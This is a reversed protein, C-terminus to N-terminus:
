GRVAITGSLRCLCRRDRLLVADRDPIIPGIFITIETRNIAALPARPRRRVPVRDVLNRFNDLRDLGIGVAAPHDDRGPVRGVHRIHCQRRAVAQKLEIDRVAAQRTLQILARGINEEAHREVDCAVRKQRDHDRMHCPQFGAIEDVSEAICVEIEIM